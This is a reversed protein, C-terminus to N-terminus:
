RSGHKRHPVTALGNPLRALACSQIPPATFYNYSFKQIKSTWVFIYSRYIDNKQLVASIRTLKTQAQNVIESFYFGRDSECVCCDLYPKYVPWGYTMWPDNLYPPKNFSAHLGSRQLWFWDLPRLGVQDLRVYVYTNTKLSYIFLKIISLRVMTSSCKLLPM